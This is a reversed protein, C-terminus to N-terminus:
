RGAFGSKAAFAVGGVARFDETEAVLELGTTGFRRDGGEPFDIVAAGFDEHAGEVGGEFLAVGFGVGELEGLGGEDGVVEFDDAEGLTSPLVGGFTSCRDGRGLGLPFAVGGLGEGM